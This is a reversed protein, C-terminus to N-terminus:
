NQRSTYLYQFRPLSTGLKEFDPGFPLWAVNEWIHSDDHSTGVLWDSSGDNEICTESTPHLFKLISNFTMVTGSPM